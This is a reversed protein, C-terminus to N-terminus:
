VTERVVVPASPDDVPPVALARRSVMSVDASVKGCTASVTSPVCSTGSVGRSAAAVWKVRVPSSASATATTVNVSPDM